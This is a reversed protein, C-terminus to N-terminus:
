RHWIELSFANDDGAAGAKAYPEPMRRGSNHQKYPAKKTHLIQMGGAVALKHLLNHPSFFIIFSIRVVM